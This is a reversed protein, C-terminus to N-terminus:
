LAAEKLYFKPFCQNRRVRDFCGTDAMVGRKIYLFRRKIAPKIDSGHLHKIEKLDLTIQGGAYNCLGCIIKNRIIGIDGGIVAAFHQMLDLDTLLSRAPAEPKNTCVAM